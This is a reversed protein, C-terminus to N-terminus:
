QVLTRKLRQHRYRFTLIYILFLFLSIRKRICSRHGLDTFRRTSTFVCVALHWHCFRQEQGLVFGWRTQGDIRKLSCGLFAFPDITSGSSWRTSIRTMNYLKESLSLQSKLLPSQGFQSLSLFIFKMFNLNLVLNIWSKTAKFALANDMNIYIIILIM